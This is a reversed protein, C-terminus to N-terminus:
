EGSCALRFGTNNDRTNPSFKNYRYSVSCYFATRYWDGGRLCRNSGDGPGLPNTVIGEKTWATDNSTVTGNYWDWCWESLNGSMDCLGLRNANLSGVPHTSGGMSTLYWGVTSLNDDIRLNRNTGGYNMDTETTERYIQKQSQVGSFAFRWDAMSPDGGRAAFEWEAETPLRYGNASMDVTAANWDDTADGLADPIEAYALNAWDKEIDNAKVSYCPTKGMLLSLKNCFTIADYWSVYYIPYNDGTGNNTGSVASIIANQTKGMVAAYLSQTVEYKCIRYPSLKVDRGVIFAGKYSASASSDCYSIWNDNSGTIETPSDMVQAFSTYGYIKGNIVIVMKM